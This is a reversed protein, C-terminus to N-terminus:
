YERPRFFWRRGARFAEIQIETKGIGVVAFGHSGIASKKDAAALSPLSIRPKTVSRCIWEDNIRLTEAFSM